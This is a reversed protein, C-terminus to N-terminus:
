LFAQEAFYFDGPYHPSQSMFFQGWVTVSSVACKRFRRPPAGSTIFANELMAFAPNAAVASSPFVFSSIASPM